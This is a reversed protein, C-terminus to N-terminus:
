RWRDLQRGWGVHHSRVMRRIRGKCFRRSVVLLVVLHGLNIVKIRQHGRILAKTVRLIIQGVLSFAHMM